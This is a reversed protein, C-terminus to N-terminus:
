IFNIDRVLNAVRRIDKDQSNKSGGLLILMDPRKKIVYVRVANTGKRKVKFEFVDKRGTGKVPRFM